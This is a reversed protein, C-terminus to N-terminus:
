NLTAYKHRDAFWCKSKAYKHRYVPVGLSSLDDTDAATSLSATSLTIDAYSTM